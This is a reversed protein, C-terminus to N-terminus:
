AIGHLISREGTQVHQHIGGLSGSSKTEDLNRRREGGAHAVDFGRPTEREIGRM